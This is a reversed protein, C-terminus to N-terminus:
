IGPTGQAILLYIQVGPNRTPIALFVSQLTTFFPVTFNMGGGRSHCLHVRVLEEEIRGGVMGSFNEGFIYNKNTDTSM